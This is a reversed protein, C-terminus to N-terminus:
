FNGATDLEIFILNRFEEMEAFLEQNIVFSKLVALELILERKDANQKSILDIQSNITQIISIKDM